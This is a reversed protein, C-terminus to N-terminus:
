RYFSLVLFALPPPMGHVAILLQLARWAAWAVSVRPMVQRDRDISVPTMDSAALFSAAAVQLRPDLPDARAYPLGNEDGRAGTWYAATGRSSPHPTWGTAYRGGSSHRREDNPELADPLLLPAIPMFMETGGRHWTTYHCMPVQQEYPLSERVCVHQPVSCDIYLAHPLVVSLSGWTASEGDEWVDDPPAYPDRPKKLSAPFRWDALSAHATKGVLVGWVLNDAAASTSVVADPGPSRSSDCERTYSQPVTLVLPVLCSHHMRVDAAGGVLEEPYKWEASSAVSEAPVPRAEVVVQRVCDRLANRLPRLANIRDVRLQLKALGASKQALRRKARREAQERTEARIDALAARLATATSDRLISKRALRTAEKRWAALRASCALKSAGLAECLDICQQKRLLEIAARLEAKTEQKEEERGENKEEKGEDSQKQEGRRKRGAEKERKRSGRNADQKKSNVKPRKVATRDGNCDGDCDGDCGPCEKRETSGFRRKAGSADSQESAM